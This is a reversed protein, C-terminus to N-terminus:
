NKKRDQSIEFDLKIGKRLELVFPFDGKQDHHISLSQKYVFHAKSYDYVVASISNRRM